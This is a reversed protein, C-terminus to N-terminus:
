SALHKVPEKHLLINGDELKEEWVLFDADTAKAYSRFIRLIDDGTMQIIVLWKENEWWRLRRQAMGLQLIHEGREDEVGLLVLQYSLFLTVFMEKQLNWGFGDIYNLLVAILPSSEEHKPSPVYSAVKM